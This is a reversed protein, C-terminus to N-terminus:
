KGICYLHKSTRLLIKGDVFVPTAFISEGMENTSLLKGKNNADLVYTQGDQYTVYIKGDALIPSSYYKGRVRVGEHEWLEKGTKIDVCVLYGKDTCLYVNGGYAIPSPVDSYGNRVNNSWAVHSKTVDGKGGLRIGTLSAGRAYPAIVFGDAVVPSSISRFFGNQGPNLGGVRWLEKGTKADHATVHDAGLVVIREQGNESFVVPTTYSQAAESPAPLNRDQKWVVEGTLKDLGALYSPGTLMCAVVVLDKTLVPSTGLDHWLSNEGYLDQLNKRWVIKGDFDLCAFDGSKYYVYVHKGDTTPSPNSGSGPRDGGPSNKGVATEWLKKGNRDFCIVLNKGGGPCTVFIRNEWVAPTSSGAAPLAAKWVINETNSWKIPYNKGVAVGNLNPGRWTPWNAAQLDGVCFSFVMLVTVIRM